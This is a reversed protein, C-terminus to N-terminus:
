RVITVDGNEKRTGSVDLDFTLSKAGGDCTFPLQVVVYPVGTVPVCTFRVSTSDVASTKLAADSLVPAGTFVANSNRTLWYDLTLEVAVTWVSSDQHWVASGHLGSKWLDATSDSCNWPPPPAPDCAVGCLTASLGISAAAGALMLERMRDSVRIRQPSDDRGKEVSGSNAAPIGKRTKRKM